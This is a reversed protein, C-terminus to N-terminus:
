VVNIKSTSAAHTTSPPSQSAVVLTSGSPKSTLQQNSSGIMGNVFHSEKSPPQPVTNSPQLSNPIKDYLMNSQTYILDLCQAHSIVREETVVGGKAVDGTISPLLSSIFWEVLFQNHVFTKVL